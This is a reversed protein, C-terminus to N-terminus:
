AAMSAWSLTSGRSSPCTRTPTACSRSALPAPSRRPQRGRTATWARYSATSPTSCASDIAESCPIQAINKNTHHRPPGLSTSAAVSTTIDTQKPRLLTNNFCSTPCSWSGPVQRGPGVTSHPKSSCGSQRKTPSGRSSFPYRLHTEAEIKAPVGESTGKVKKM